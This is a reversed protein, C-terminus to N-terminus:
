LLMLSVVLALDNQVIVLTMTASDLTVRRIYMCTRIPKVQVGALKVIMCVVTRCM